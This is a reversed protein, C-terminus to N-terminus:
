EEWCTVSNDATTMYLKGGAAILGDFVPPVDLHYETLRKGDATSVAWLLAGKRGEIAALPDDEDVVDPPGALFLTDGALVRARTRM